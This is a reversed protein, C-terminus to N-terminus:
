KNNQHKQSQTQEIEFCVLLPFILVERNKEFNCIQVLERPKEFSVLPHLQTHHKEGLPLRGSKSNQPYSFPKPRTNM